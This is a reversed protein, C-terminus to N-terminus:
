EGGIHEKLRELESIAGFLQNKRNTERWDIVENEKKLELIRKNIAEKLIEIERNM